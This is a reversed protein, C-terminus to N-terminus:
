HEDRYKKPTMNELNKFIKSFHTADNFGCLESIEVIRLSPNKLLLKAKEIRIRNLIDNYGGAEYNNLLKSLHWKSVHTNEALQTLTLKESYHEELFKLAFNIIFNNATCRSEDQPVSQRGQLSERQDSLNHLRETMFKLAENIENMKSPKLLFRDVGLNIASQAYDFNRYGTLVTIQLDPFESKLGAIMALGNIDGMKIDTFLIDPKHKRIIEAGSRSDSATAVVMCDFDEWHVIKKLGEVIIDEDDVIVVKFMFQEMM